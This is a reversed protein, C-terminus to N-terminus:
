NAVRIEHISAYTPNGTRRSNETQYVEVSQLYLTGRTLTKSIIKSIRNKPPFSIQYLTNSASTPLKWPMAKTSNKTKASRMNLSPSMWTQINPPYGHFKFLNLEISKIAWTWHLHCGLRSTQLIDMSNSWSWSLAISLAHTCSAAKMEYCGGLWFYKPLSCYSFNLTLYFIM